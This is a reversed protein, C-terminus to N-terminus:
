RPSRTPRVADAAKILVDREGFGGAKTAIPLGAMWGGVVSGLPVGPAVQDHLRIGTGDVGALLARAGDGGTVVLGSIEAARLVRAAVEALRRAVLDPAVELGTRDPASILLVPPQSAAADLVGAVFSEWADDGLLQRESPQRRETGQETLARAQERAADHLTTVVVLATSSVGAPEARTGATSVDEHVHGAPRWLTALPEALGASGVAVAHDGLEAVVRSVRDLESKDAADLVVIRGAARVRRAGSAPSETPDLRVHAADLLTPLHSETVPTVPDKGAATEAVPRGNVLLTGDVLTRGVDPFSPCVVAVVGRPLADLLADIEARVPGRLTSDIKKYLRPAGGRLLEETTRRVRKAADADACARSDTTVAVVQADSDGSGLLLEAAWGADSFQVATDGAGTLDDAIIAVQYTM